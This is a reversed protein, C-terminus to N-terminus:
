CILVNELHWKLARIDPKLAQDMPNRLSLHEFEQLPLNEAQRVVQKSVVLKRDEGVSFFGRDFAWHHTRCMALGNRPDDAGLLARPVIHAAEVEALHQYRLGLGCVCCQFDYLDLVRHRFAIDRAVRATRSIVKQQEQDFLSFKQKEREEITAEAERFEEDTLPAESSLLGWRRPGMTAILDTYTPSQSPVLILRYTDLDTLSRQIILIDDQKAENRMGALNSTLRSEPPRSGGWTQYQYRTHVTQRYRTGVFLEVQMMEDVTPHAASTSDSLGPFYPRLKKPIVIGAQHGPAQGTDNRALLKYIPQDWAPDNLFDSFSVM